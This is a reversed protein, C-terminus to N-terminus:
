FVTLPFAKGTPRALEAKPPFGFGGCMDGSKILISLAVAREISV